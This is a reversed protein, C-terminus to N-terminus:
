EFDYPVYDAALSKWYKATKYTDLSARPVYIKRGSANIDEKLVCVEAIGITARHQKMFVKQVRMSLKWEM